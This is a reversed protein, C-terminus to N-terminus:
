ASPQSVNKRRTHSWAAELGNITSTAPLGRPRRRFCLFTLSRGKMLSPGTFRTSNPTGRSLCCHAAPSPSEKPANLLRSAAVKQLPTRRWLTHLLESKSATCCACPSAGPSYKIRLRECRDIKIAGGSALQASLRKSVEGLDLLLDRQPLAPDTALNVRAARSM